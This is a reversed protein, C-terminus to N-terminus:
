IDEYRCWKIYVDLWILGVNIYLICCEYQGSKFHTYVSCPTYKTRWNSCSFAPWMSQLRSWMYSVRTCPVDIITSIDNEPLGGTNHWSQRCRTQQMSPKKTQCVCHGSQWHGPDWFEATTAGKCGRWHLVLPCGSLPLHCVEWVAVVTMLEM